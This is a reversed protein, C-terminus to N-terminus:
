SIGLKTKDAFLKPTHLYGDALLEKILPLHSASWKVGRLSLLDGADTTAISRILNLGGLYGWDKTMGGLGNPDRLGRKVRIAIDVAAPLAIHQSLSKAIELIGKTQAMDVAITRAAYTRLADLDLLNAEHEGWLALGEETAVPSGLPVVALPEPQRSANEWRLVHGGIEHILLRAADRLSFMADDRVRVRRHPGNVSMQATMDETVQVHWNNLNYNNLATRFREALDAATLSPEEDASPRATTSRSLIARAEIVLHEDPLGDLLVAAEAYPHDQTSALSRARLIAADLNNQVAQSLSIPLEKKAAGQISHLTEVYDQLNIEPYSFPYGYTTDGSKIAQSIQERHRKIELPQAWTSAQFDRAANQISEAIQLTM